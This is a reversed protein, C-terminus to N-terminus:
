LEDAGIFISMGKEVLTRLAATQSEDDSLLGGVRFSRLISSEEDGICRSTLAQLLPANVVDLICGRLALNQLHPLFGQDQARDLKQFFDLLFDPNPGWLEIDTLYPMPTSFWDTALPIYVSTSFRRLSASSRALFSIIDPCEDTVISTEIHINQIAPLRVLRLFYMYCGDSLHLTQLRGHTVVDLRVIEEDRVCGTFKELSPNCLLLDFFDDPSLSDCTVTSLGGYPILSPCPGAGEGWVFNRLRPATGLLELREEEVDNFPIDVALTELIPFAGINALRQFDSRPLSLSISQLQPAHHLLAARIAEAWLPNGANYISLSLPCAGARLFWDAMVRELGHVGVEEPIRHLDLYLHVWLHPTSLAIDRWTRCVHLLLLPAKTVDPSEVSGVDPSPLCDLFIESTIEHPLTLIPYVIGDLQDQIYQRNDELSKLRLKLELISMDVQALRVRLDANISSM